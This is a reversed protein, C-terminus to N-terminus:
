RDHFPQCNVASRTFHQIRAILYRAPDHIDRDIIGSFVVDLYPMLVTQTEDLFDCYLPHHLTLHNRTTTDCMGDTPDDTIFSHRMHFHLFKHDDCFTMEVPMFEISEGTHM